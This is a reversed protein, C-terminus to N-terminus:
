LNEIHDVVRDKGEELTNSISILSLQIGHLMDILRDMKQAMSEELVYKVEENEM